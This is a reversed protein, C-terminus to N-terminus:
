EGIVVKGGDLLRLEVPGRLQKTAELFEAPTAVSIRNVESIFVGAQMGASQAPGDPSVKTIVVARRYPDDVRHYRRRGTPYDVTIGRWPAYRPVTEIIGEDDVVPWKGLTAKVKFPGISHRTHWGVVEVEEGPAHLGVVRMLDSDSYVPIGGVSVIVDDALIGARGAPSYPAVNSVQVASAQKFTTNLARFNSPLVTHPSIGLMGYEVEHGAILTRIVRRTFEDFPIAFGASKEYGEIAALSTTLGILEGKLSILPSGSTGLNLRGDIQILNGLRYMLARSEWDEAWPLPRRTVNSVIGWGASSSGDHALGYPNGLMVVLQGKRIPPATIWDLPKLEAPDIKVESLGLHLIALDSRPDAAIISAQCMRRDAFRVYLSPGRREEEPNTSYVPGGQVVHYNTLILRDAPRIGAVIIGTGFNNPQFEPDEPDDPRQNQPRPQAFAGLSFGRGGEPGPRVKAISVVSPEAQEIVKILSNELLLAPDQGTASPSVSSLCIMWGIVALYRTVLFIRQSAFSPASM